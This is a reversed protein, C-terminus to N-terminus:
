RHKSAIVNINMLVLLPPGKKWNVKGKSLVPGESFNGLVLDIRGDGDIDGADMTLWRGVEAAPLGYPKFSLSGRNELYVFGEEPHHGFDAFAAIVALDPDGDGDFDRAMAKYCGNIPYFFAQRFRNQGDNLYIYVGHYPKLVLSYDANDGCTYVIDPFGDGNMDALEFYSSGYEPPFRLVQREEFRGGGKNIFLFIGEDGQAFLAWIDPLGDHNVDQVYAKIAGPQARLVHRTYKGGERGEMWSLAGKLNGFECVLYDGRGDGNLDAPIVQVPRALDGFLLVSDILLRGGPGYRWRSVTGSRGNNPNLNGIDCVVGSDGSFAMDVVANQSFTSDTLRLTSATYAWRRVYNPFLSGSIVPRRGGVTDVRVFSTLPPHGDAPPMVAKFLTLGTDIPEHVPQPPMSDPAMGSYYDILDQWQWGALLPQSPYFSPGIVPDRMDSPYRDMGFRFIGLRPGMAPLVGKEWTAKNLLSPDPLAHCSQCYVAALERGRRIASDAIPRGNCDRAVRGCSFLLLSAFLFLLAAIRM